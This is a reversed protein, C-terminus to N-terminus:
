THLSCTSGVSRESLPPVRGSRLAPAPNRFDPGHPGWESVRGVRVDRASQIEM